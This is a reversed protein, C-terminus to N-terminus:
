YTFVKLTILETDDIKHILSILEDTSMVKNSGMNKTEVTVDFKKQDHSAGTNSAIASLDKEIAWLVNILKKLSKIM